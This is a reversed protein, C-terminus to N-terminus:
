HCVAFQTQAGRSDAFSALAGIGATRGSRGKGPEIGPEAKVPCEFNPGLRRQATAGPTRLKGRKEFDFPVIATAGDQGVNTRDIALEAKALCANRVEPRRM